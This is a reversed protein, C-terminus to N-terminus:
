RIIHETGPDIVWHGSSGIVLNAYCNVQVTTTHHELARVMFTVPGTEDLAGEVRRAQTDEDDETM